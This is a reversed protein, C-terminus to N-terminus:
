KVEYAVVKNAYFTPIYLIKKTADYGLDASNLKQSRNDFLIEKSGDVTVYYTIGAWCSIIFDTPNVMVIGDSSADMGDAIKLVQKNKDVKLFRGKDLVLLDDKVCLLGNPSKLGNLSDLYLTAKGLEIKHIKSARTDSVFVVGKDNVTIDNLFIANEVPIRQTILAKKIDIVVVENLDAVYLLNGFRGMGKPANLGSVWDTQIIKGDLGIKGISGKGDKEAPKGDINSVFLLKDKKDFLVSEPTKLTTDTEWLKVLSHKQAFSQNQWMLIAAVIILKKM